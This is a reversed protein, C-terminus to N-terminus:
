ESRVCSTWIDYKEFSSDYKEFLSDDNEVSSDESKNRLYFFARSVEGDLDTMILAFNMMKLVFEDHTKIIFFNLDGELDTSCSDFTLCIMLCDPLDTFCRVRASSYFGAQFEDNKICFDFIQIM